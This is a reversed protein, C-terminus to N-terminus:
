YEFYTNLMRKLNSKPKQDLKTTSFGYTPSKHSGFLLVFHLKQTSIQLRTHTMFIYSTSFQFFILILESVKKASILQILHSFDNYLKFRFLLAKNPSQQVLVALDFPELFRQCGSLLLHGGFLQFQVFDTQKDTSQGHESCVTDTQM